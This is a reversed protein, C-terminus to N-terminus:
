GELRDRVKVDRGRLGKRKMKLIVRRGDREM